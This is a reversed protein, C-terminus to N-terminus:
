FDVRSSLAAMFHETRFGSADKITLVDNVLLVKLFNGLLLLLLQHLKL